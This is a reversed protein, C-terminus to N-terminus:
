NELSYQEVLVINVTQYAGDRWIRLTLVDGVKLDKKIAQLQDMTEIDVGNAQVIVDGRRLGKAWADSKEEVQDIQVGVPCGYYEAMELTVTYATIGITPRGSVVGEAILTDVITKVTVSPIAFGLGEVSSSYSQMKLNTIGIVQGYENILAGGSNGSNLAANTQILTMTHGDVNVDRNIASIIGDTMTGQLNEGLPNGIAVVTDGVELLSSDGFVAPTLKTCDIKLVALDTQEDQGVLAAQYAEGDSGGDLLLIVDIQICGEIVHANTIIYGDESMVVGTGLSLGGTKTGRVSVISPLNQQYIEQFSLPEGEPKATLLLTTGDGLPAREVSDPTPTPTPAANHEVTNPVFPEELLSGEMVYFLVAAGTLLALACLFLVAAKIGGQRTRPTQPSPSFSPREEPPYYYSRM